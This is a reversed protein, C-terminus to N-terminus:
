LCRMYLIFVIIPPVSRFTKNHETLAAIEKKLDSVTEQLADIEEKQKTSTYQLRLYFGNQGLLQEPAAAIISAINSTSSVDM